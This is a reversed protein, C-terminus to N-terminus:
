CSLPMSGSAMCNIFSSSYRSMNAGACNRYKPPHAEARGLIQLAAPPPFIPRASADGRLARYVVASYALRRRAAKVSWRLHFPPPETENQSSTSKPEFVMSGQGPRGRENDACSPLNARLRRTGSETQYSWSPQGTNTVNSTSSRVHERSTAIALEKETTRRGTWKGM